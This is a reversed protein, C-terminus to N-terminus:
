KETEIVIRNAWEFAYLVSELKDANFGNGGQYLYEKILKMVEVAESNTITAEVVDDM